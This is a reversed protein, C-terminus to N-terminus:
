ASKVEYRRKKDSSKEIEVIVFPMMAKTLLAVLRDDGWEVLHYGNKELEELMGLELFKDYGYNYLDYHFINNGYQHQLSFTPSTIDKNLDFFEAFVKCFTTKGSALNGKLIIIGGDPLRDIVEQCVIKIESISLDYIM